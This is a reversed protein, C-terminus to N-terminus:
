SAARELRNELADRVTKDLDENGLVFERLHAPILEGAALKAIIQKLSTNQDRLAQVERDIQRGKRVIGNSKLLKSMASVAVRAGLVGACEEAIETIKKNEFAIREKHKKIWDNVDLTTLVDM